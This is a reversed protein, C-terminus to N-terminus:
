LQVSRVGDPKRWKLWGWAALWLAIAVISIWKGIQFARPAYEVRLAHHGASLPVARLMYNAPMVEYCAQTSGPLSVARWAPTYVDTILLLAPQPTDAEITLSDTTSAALRVSGQNAATAPKPEPEQELIIERTPDFSPARMTNFIADRNKVVRYGDMLQLRPLPPTKAEVVNLGNQQPVFAFRLRLMAYLPDLNAFSVYQTAKDPDLRQTWAIFEAYRRVVGPDFGWMDSAGLSMASDANLPNIIRYDGPHEALFRKIEPRVVSASDFTARTGHAFVFVELVGLAVVGLLARPEKRSLALLAGLLASTGAAFFLAAAATGQAQVAFGANTWAERPLYSEGTSAVANMVGRWSSTNLAWFAAVALLGALVFVAKVFSLEVQKQKFMRDCGTAALLVLFLSAPFIFKSISRFKDFGPVFAYLLAFLPTHVGLALLLALGLVALPIWTVKKGCFTVAYAALLVGTLGLFLSMEWLYCRGWYSTIQGFFDPALLTLFNEPPFGFMSAFEFPLPMSRITEGAAQMGTLLQVAAIAAGGPYIALLWAATQWKWHCILRLGSYVGAAIATYFVYQPHGSFIQMAVAVMGILAWGRRRGQLVADISCFILPSWVMAPLNTLHGAYIHLFHPGCFMLLAGAFFSSAVNLGRRRMWLFMFAGIAFVHLAISWNIAATLPLFLFIWNPPYLLAAQLGGFYPAGGFIHPNWLAFNGKAMERFGFDRWSVFQLFLDTGENGLIRTGGAFLVDGFMALVLVFLGAIASAASRADRSSESQVAPRASNKV